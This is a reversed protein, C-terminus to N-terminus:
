YLQLSCATPRMPLWTPITRKERWYPKFYSQWIAVNPAIENYKKPAVEIKHAENSVFWKMAALAEPRTIRSNNPGKIQTITLLGLDYSNGVSITAVRKGERRMSWLRQRDTAIDDAYTRVCNKMVHSEEHIDEASLLPVFEYEDVTAPKLWQCLLDADGILANMHTRNFWEDASKSAAKYNVQPTWRKVVHKHAALDPRVSFWAWLALKRLQCNSPTKTACERAVWVAFSEDGWQTALSVNELWRAAHRSRRPLHNQIQRSYVDQNPLKRLHTEFAEPQLKRVWLPIRASAALNKLSQGAIVQRKLAATDCTNHPVAIMFLLAPFSIALDALAQHERATNSIQVRYRKPFRNLQREIKSQQSVTYEPLRTPVRQLTSTM